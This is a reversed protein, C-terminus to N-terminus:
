MLYLLYATKALSNAAAAWGFLLVSQASLWPRPASRLALRGLTVLALLEAVILGIGFANFSGGPAGQAPAGGGLGASAIGATVYFSVPISIVLVGVALLPFKEAMLGLERSFVVVGLLALGALIYLTSTSGVLWLSHMGTKAGFTWAYDSFVAAVFIWVGIAVPLLLLWPSGTWGPKQRGPSSKRPTFEIVRGNVNPKQGNGRGSM